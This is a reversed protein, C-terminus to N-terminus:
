AKRALFAGTDRSVRFVGGDAAFAARTVQRLKAEESRATEHGSLLYAVVDEPDTVVLEDVLHLLKVSAFHRALIPPASELSFRWFGDMSPGALAQARLEFLAKFNDGSNTTIVGLGGPRLVRAIEGVAGEIDPAHYLMHMAFVADFAADAYPLACVNAVQGDVERWRGVDRVRALAEDVMGPSFDTLTLSLDTRLTAAAPSAWFRGPGCGVELVRGGAPLPLDALLDWVGDGKGYKQHLGQRARLNRSDRYQAELAETM